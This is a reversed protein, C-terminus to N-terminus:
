ANDHQEQHASAIRDAEAFACLQDIFEYYGDPTDHDKAPPGDIWQQWLGAPTLFRAARDTGLKADLLLLEGLRERFDTRDAVAILWAATKRERWGGELLVGLKRSTVEGAAEGLKRLFKARERDTMGLLSGGLKLYRRDPTVYRRISKLLEDDEDARHM